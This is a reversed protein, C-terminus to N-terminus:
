CKRTKRGKRGSEVCNDVQSLGIYLGFGAVAFYADNHSCHKDFASTLVSGIFAKNLGFLDCTRCKNEHFSEM